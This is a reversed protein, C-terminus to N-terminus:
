DKSRSQKSKRKRGKRSQKKKSKPAKKGGKKKGKKRRRTCKGEKEDRKKCKKKKKKCGWLPVACDADYKTVDVNYNRTMLMECANMGPEYDGTPIMLFCIVFGRGGNSEQGIVFEFEVSLQEDYLTTTNAQVTKVNTGGKTKSRASLNDGEAIDLDQVTTLLKTKYPSLWITKKCKRQSETGVLSRPNYEWPFNSHSVLLGGDMSLNGTTNTGCIDVIDRQGPKDKPTFCMVEKLELYDPPYGICNCGPSIQTPMIIIETPFNISCSRKWYCNLHSVILQPTKGVCCDLRDSCLGRGSTVDIFSIRARDEKCSIDFKTDSGNNIRDVCGHELYGAHVAPILAFVVAVVLFLEM